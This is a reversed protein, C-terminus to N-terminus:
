PWVEDESQLAGRGPREPATPLLQRKGAILEALVRRALVAGKDSRLLLAGLKELSAGGMNRQVDEIMPKDEVGFAHEVASRIQLDMEPGDIAFDRTSSWFYMTSTSTLPTLIHAGWQTIGARREQGPYTVGVDLLMSAPPDWRMELWHDVGKGNSSFLADWVPAAPANPVWRNSDITTGSQFVQHKGNQIADNGLGGAHLFGVHSLDMLNDTLLEYNAQAVITGHIRRYRPDSLCSFDPILTEDAEVSAGWWVWILADREVAKYSELRARPPVPGHPNHVCRGSGDFRLGHYPCELHNESVRKGLALSAFRHPCVGSVVAVAGDAQRFLALKIECVTRGLIQKDLEDSWAVAYWCNKLYM